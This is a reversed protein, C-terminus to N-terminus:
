HFILLIEVRKYANVSMMSIEMNKELTNGKIGLINYGDWLITGNPMNKVKM